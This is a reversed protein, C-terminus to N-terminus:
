NGNLNHTKKEILWRCKKTVHKNIEQIQKERPKNSIKKHIKLNKTFLSVSSQKSLYCKPFFIMKIPM